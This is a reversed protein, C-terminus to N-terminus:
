KKEKEPRKAILLVRPETFSEVEGAFLEVHFYDQVKKPATALMQALKKAQSRGVKRQALWEQFDQVMPVTETHIVQFEADLAMQRWQGETFTQLHSPNRALEFQQYFEAIEPDSPLPNDIVALRGGRRLVRHFEQLSRYLKPFHHTAIRCTLLTFSGAPFPLDQADAERFTVNEIGSKESIQEQAKKLMQMTLDSAVVQRVLPAFYLTAEGEGCAIDLMQDDVTPQLYRAATALDHVAPGSNTELYEHLDPYIDVDELPQSAM